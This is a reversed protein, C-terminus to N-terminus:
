SPQQIFFSLSHLFFRGECTKHTSFLIMTLFAQPPFINKNITSSPIIMLKLNLSCFDGSVRKLVSIDFTVVYLYTIPNRKILLQLFNSSLFTVSESTVILAISRENMDFFKGIARKNWEAISKIFFFSCTTSAIFLLSGIIMLQQM